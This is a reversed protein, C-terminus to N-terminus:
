RNVLDEFALNPFLQFGWEKYKMILKKLDNAIDKDQKGANAFIGPFTEYVQVLGSQSTLITDNFTRRKVKKKKLDEAGDGEKGDSAGKLAEVEDDAAGNEPGNEDMNADDLSRKNSNMTSGGAGLLEDEGDDLFDYDSNLRSELTTM